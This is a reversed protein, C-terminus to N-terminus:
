NMLQLSNRQRTAASFAIRVIHVSKWLDPRDAVSHLYNQYSAFCLSFAMTAIDFKNPVVVGPLLPNEQM